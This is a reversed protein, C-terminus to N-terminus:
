HDQLVTTIRDAQKVHTILRMIPFINVYHKKKLFIFYFRLIFQFIFYLTMPSFPSSAVPSICLVRTLYMEKIIVHIFANTIHLM